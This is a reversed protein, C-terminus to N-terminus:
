AVSNLPTVECPTASKKDKYRVMYRVGKRTEYQTERYRVIQVPIKEKNM